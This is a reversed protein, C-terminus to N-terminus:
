MEVLVQGNVLADALNRSAYVTLNQLELGDHFWVCDATRQQRTLASRDSPSDDFVPINEITNTLFPLSLDPSRKFVNGLFRRYLPM